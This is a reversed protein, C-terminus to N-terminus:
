NEKPENTTKSSAMLGDSDSSSAAVSQIAKKIRQYTGCRCINSIAKIDDDTPNANEQLLATTAMIMGSQCYGCQPVQHEIWAQQIQSLAGGTSIGEITTIEKGEVAACPLVCSRMARGDVMVTCAGCSSVGCGYKTGTMNLEDRLLWLVPMGKEVDAKIIRGNIKFEM